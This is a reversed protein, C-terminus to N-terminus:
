LKVPKSMTLKLMVNKVNNEERPLHHIVQHHVALINEIIEKESMKQTGVMVQINPQKKVEVRITNQLQEYLPALSAKPPVICGAKPNPMKARPGLVRGWSAAIKPMINAQGIFWEHSSAISRMKKKDYSAFDDLAVVTDCVKKAEDVLEPGVLACVKKKKNTSNPLQMYFDVQEEPKKLNVEKLAFLLDYSQTFKRETKHLEAIAQKLIKEDM